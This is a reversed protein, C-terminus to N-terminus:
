ELSYVWQFNLPSAGDDAITIKRRRGRRVDEDLRSLDLEAAIEEYVKVLAFDM